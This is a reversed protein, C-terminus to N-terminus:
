PCRSRVITMTHKRWPKRTLSSTLRSHSWTLRSSASNVTCRALFPRGLSCGIPRKAQQQASSALFGCQRERYMRVHQSMSGAGLQDIIPLREPSNLLIETMPPNRRGLAIGLDVRALELFKEPSRSGPGESRRAAAVPGTPGVKARDQVGPRRTCPRVSRTWSRSILNVARSVRKVEISSRIPPISRRRSKISSRVLRIKAIGTRRASRWPIRELYYAEACRESHAARAVPTRLGSASWAVYLGRPSLIKPSTHPAECRRNGCSALIWSRLDRSCWGGYSSVAPARACLSRSM